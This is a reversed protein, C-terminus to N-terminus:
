KKVKKKGTLNNFFVMIIYYFMKFMYKIPKIIGGHMSEGFERNKMQVSIEEISYGQYILEILLNADPFEPYAYIKSLPVFVKRKLVQLGSTPDYIKKGTLMKIIIQFLKTGVKRFFSHQYNTTSLFRSGIVIDAETELAHEYMKKAESALHQGDGDFQILYDYDEQAAYKLGTQVAYSYGLNIPLDLYSVGEISKIVNLTDDKSCDNIFLIDAESFNEKIDNAVTKLNLEENYSPVIMLVKNM